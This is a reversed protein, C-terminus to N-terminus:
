KKVRQLHVTKGATDCHSKVWAKTSDRKMERKCKPCKYKAM